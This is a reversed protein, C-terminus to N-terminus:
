RYGGWLEGGRLTESPDVTRILRWEISARYTRLMEM